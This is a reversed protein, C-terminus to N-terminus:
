VAPSSLIILKVRRKVMPALMIGSIYEALMFAFIFAIFSLPIKPEYLEHIVTMGLVVICIEVLVKAWILSKNAKNVAALVDGYKNDAFESYYNINYNM